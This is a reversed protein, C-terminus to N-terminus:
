WNTQILCLSVRLAQPLYSCQPAVEAAGIPSDCGLGQPNSPLSKSDESSLYEKFFWNRPQLQAKASVSDSVVLWWTVTYYLNEMMFQINDLGGLWLIPCECCCEIMLHFHYIHSWPWILGSPVFLHYFYIACIGVTCAWVVNGRGEWGSDRHGRPSNGIVLQSLLFFEPKFILKYLIRTSGQLPHNYCRLGALLPLKLPHSLLFTRGTLLLTSRHQCM